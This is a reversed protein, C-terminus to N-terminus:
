LYARVSSDILLVFGVQEDNKIKAEELKKCVDILEEEALALEKDKRTMSLRMDNVREKYDNLEKAGENCNNDYLGNLGPVATINSDTQTSDDILVHNEITMNFSSLNDNDVTNDPRYNHYTVASFPCYTPENDSDNDQIECHVQSTFEPSKTFIVAPPDQNDTRIISTIARTSDREIMISTTGWRQQEKFRGRGQIDAASITIFRVFM